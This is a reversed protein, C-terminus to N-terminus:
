SRKQLAWIGVKCLDKPWGRQWAFKKVQLKSANIISLTDDLSRMHSDDEEDTWGEEHAVNEKLIVVGDNTLADYSKDLFEVFEDDKLYLTCWQVWILDYHSSPPSFAQLTEEIFSVRSGLHRLNVKAQELLRRVPEYVHIETALDQLIYQTVRGIGAGVEAAVKFPTRGDKTWEQIFLKSDLIDKSNLDGYGGLVGNISAEQQAWYELSKTM